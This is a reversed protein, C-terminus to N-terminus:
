TFPSSAEGLLHAGTQWAQITDRPPPCGCATVQQSTRAWVCVGRATGLMGPQVFVPAITWPGVSTHKDNVRVISLRGQVMCTNTQDELCM